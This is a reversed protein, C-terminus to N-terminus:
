TAPPASPPETPVCRELTNSDYCEGCQGCTLQAQSPQFTLRALCTPCVVGIFIRYLLQQEAYLMPQGPLYSFFCLFCLLFQWPFLDNLSLSIGFLTVIPQFWGGPSLVAAAVYVVCQLCCLLRVYYRYRQVFTALERPLLRIM